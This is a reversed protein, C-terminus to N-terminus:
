EYVRRLYSESLRYTHKKDDEVPRTKGESDIWSENDFVVDFSFEKGSSSIGCEAIIGRSGNLLFHQSREWNTGATSVDKILAVKDGKKFPCYKSFLLDSRKMLQEVYFGAPGRALADLGKQIDEIATKITKDYDALFIDSSM